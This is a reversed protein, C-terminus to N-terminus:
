KTLFFAQKVYGTLTLKKRHINGKKHIFKGV